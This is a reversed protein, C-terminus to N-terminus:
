LHLLRIENKNRNNKKKEESSFVSDEIVNEINKKTFFSDM